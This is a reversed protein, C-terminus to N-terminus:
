LVTHMCVYYVKHMYFKIAYLMCSQIVKALEIMVVYKFDANTGYLSLSVFTLAFVAHVCVFFTTSKSCEFYLVNAAKM